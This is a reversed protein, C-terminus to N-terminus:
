FLQISIDGLNAARRRLALANGVSALLVNAARLYLVHALAALVHYRVLRTMCAGLPSHLNGLICVPMIYLCQLQHTHTKLDPYKVSVWLRINQLQKYVAAVM